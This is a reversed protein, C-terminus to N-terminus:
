QVRVPNVHVQSDPWLRRMSRAHMEARFLAMSHREEEPEEDRVPFDQEHQVQGQADTVTVVYGTTRM